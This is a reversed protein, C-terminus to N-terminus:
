MEPTELIEIADVNEIRLLKIIKNGKKDTLQVKIWEDDTDLVHCLMETNGILTLADDSKIKCEKGVLENILKSMTTEGKVKREIQKVKAEMRKVKGPYSSYCLLLIFAIFGFFEM